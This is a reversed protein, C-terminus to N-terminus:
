CNQDGSESLSKVAGSIAQQTKEAIRPAGFYNEILDPSEVFREVALPTILKKQLWLEKAMDM